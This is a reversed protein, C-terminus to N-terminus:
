PTWQHPNLNWIPASTSTYTLAHPDAACAALALLTLLILIRM